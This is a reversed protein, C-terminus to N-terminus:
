MSAPMYRLMDVQNVKPQLYLCWMMRKSSSISGPVKGTLKATLHTHYVHASMRHVSYSGKWDAKKATKIMGQWDQHIVPLNLGAAKLKNHREMHVLHGIFQGKWWLADFPILAYRGTKSNEIFRDLAKSSDKVRVLEAVKRPSETQSTAEQWVFEYLVMSGLPLTDLEHDVMPLEGVVSTIDEMRRSFVKKTGNETRVMIICHGNHKRQGYTKDDELVGKPAKSIPKCPCFSEPLEDLTVPVEESKLDEELEEWTKYGEKRKITIKAEAELKAQEEPTTENVKGVNMAICVKEVEQVKDSDLLGWQSRMIAGETSIDIWKIKGTRAEQYLKAM